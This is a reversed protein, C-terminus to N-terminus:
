LGFKRNVTSAPDPGPSRSAAQDGRQADDQATGRSILLLTSYELLVIESASCVRDPSTLHDELTASTNPLLNRM